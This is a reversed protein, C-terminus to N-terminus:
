EAETREEKATLKKLHEVIINLTQRNTIKTKPMSTGEFLRQPNNMFDRLKEETWVGKAAKLAPSYHTFDSKGIERGVVNYLSPARNTATQGPGHCTICKNWTKQARKSFTGRSFAPKTQSDSGSIKDYRFKPRHPKIIYIWNTSDLALLTGDGHNYIHRIKERINIPEVFVVRSQVIHLRYLKRAPLSAVLLDGKWQPAFNEISIINSIGISPVFAFVPKEYGDHQGQLKSLNYSYQGYDTGYSTFPWGYNKGKKILNLEDGGRPGHETAWLRKQADYTIGQPNRHGISIKTKRGTNINIEVIRGYDSKENQLIDWDEKIKGECGFDGITLIVNAPHPSPIIAGGTQVFDYHNKHKNINICPKAEFIVKWQSAQAKWQFPSQKNPFNIRALRLTRCNKKDNRYMYTILLTTMKSQKIVLINRYLHGQPPVINVLHALHHTKLDLHFFYISRQILVNNGVKTISGGKYKKLSKNKGYVIRKVKLPFFQTEMLKTSDKKPQSVNLKTSDKKPQSVNPKSIFFLSGLLAIGFVALTAMLFFKKKKM